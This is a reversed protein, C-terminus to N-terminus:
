GLTVFPDRSNPVCFSFTILIRTQRLKRETHQPMWARAIFLISNEKIKEVFSRLSIREMIHHSPNSFIFTLANEFIARHSRSTTCVTQIQSASTM